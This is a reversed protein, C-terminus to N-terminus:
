KKALKIFKKDADQYTGALHAPTKLQDSREGEFAAKSGCSTKFVM